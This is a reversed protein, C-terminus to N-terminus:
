EPLAWVPFALHIWIQQSSFQCRDQVRKTGSSEREQRHNSMTANTGPFKPLGAGYWQPEIKPFRLKFISVVAPSKLWCSQPVRLCTLKPPPVSKTHIPFNIKHFSDSWQNKLSNFFFTTLNQFAKLRWRGSGPFCPRLQNIAAPSLLVMPTM